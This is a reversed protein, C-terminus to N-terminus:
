FFDPFFTLQKPIVRELRRLEEENGQILGIEVLEPVTKYGLMVTSLTNITLTITHQDKVVGSVRRSSQGSLEFLGHNWPAYEDLVNLRIADGDSAWSYQKLYSVVDVIRGMFNPVVEIKVRPNKMIFPLPEHVSTVIEVKDVMSDHQCIFNWLERRAQQNLVIFEKVIMKNDQVKKYLLYGEPRDDDSYFIVPITDVIVQEKWWVDDRVLMGTSRGAYKEYVAQLDEHWEGKEFRKLSGVKQDNRFTLDGKDIILFKKDVFLEWGFKRYFDISFPHLFALLQGNEKMIELARTILEKVHGQRRYEPYSSVSAVGGMKIKRGHQFIEYPRIHLKSALKESDFIGLIEHSEMGKLVKEREEKSLEYQFAYMSLNIAENFYEKPVTTVHM